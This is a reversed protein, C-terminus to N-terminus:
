IIVYKIHNKTEINFYYFYFLNKNYVLSSKFYGMKFIKNTVNGKIKFTIQQM